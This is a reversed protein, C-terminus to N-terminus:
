HQKTKNKEQLFGPSFYMSSTEAQLETTLTNFRYSRVCDSCSCAASRLSCERVYCLCPQATQLFLQRSWFVMPSQWSYIGPSSRSFRYDSRARANMEEAMRNAIEMSAMKNGITKGQDCFAPCSGATHM